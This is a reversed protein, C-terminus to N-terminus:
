HARRKLDEQLRRLHSTLTDDFTYSGVRAILGGILNPDEEYSMIVRKGTVKQVIAELEKREEPALVSASTVQGRTVRNAEDSKFEFAQVIQKFINLRNKKALTLLFKETLPSLGKQACAKQVVTQKDTPKILPSSLFEVIEEDELLVKGLQRLDSFVKDQVKEENALSHLAKAYRAAVESFAM